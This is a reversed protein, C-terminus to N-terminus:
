YKERCIPCKTCRTACPMCIFHACNSIHLKEPAIGELCVSCDEVHGERAKDTYLDHIRRKLRDTDTDRTENRIANIRDRARKFKGYLHDYDERLLRWTDQLKHIESYYGAGPTKIPYPMYCKAGYFVVIHIRIEDKVPDYEVQEDFTVQTQKVEGYHVDEREELDFKGFYYTFVNSFAEVLSEVNHEVYTSEIASANESGETEPLPVIYKKPIILLYTHVNQQKNPSTETITYGNLSKSIKKELQPIFGKNFSDMFLRNRSISSRGFMEETM